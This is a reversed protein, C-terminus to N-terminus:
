SFWSPPSTQSRRWAEEAEARLRALEQAEAERQAKTKEFIDRPIFYTKEENPDFYDPHHREVEDEELEGKFWFAAMVGAISGILHSEWSIGPQDPLIGVFMGSYLFVVILALIISRLSRRFVGNWFIFSVLGYVLGSAGIHSVQRAFLWVGIGTTFYILWFARQAVRRFFFFTLTGLVFLPISNAGIHAYPGADGANAGHVFPATVIGRLGYATRSIVGYNGPDWNFHLQHLHIVWIALVMIGPIRVAEKLHQRTIHLSDADSDILPNM